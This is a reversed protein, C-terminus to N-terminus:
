GSVGLFERYRIELFARNPADLRRGPARLVRGHMEKMGHELMPGDVEDLLRRNIKVVSDPTVGLLNADFAAHHIKCLSLGNKVTPEGLEHSDPLIHAADLLIGHRLDCVACRTDYAVIVRARFAAQHVRQRATRVSYSKQLETMHRLDDFSATAEDLAIVFTREEPYDDVVYVPLVPVLINKVEKRFLILPVGATIANRLKRNDGSWPDGARYAYRLLGDSSELDDYPGNVTAVISLTSAFAVPNRIGRSYDILPLKEGNARYSLLEHRSIFGGNADSRAKVWAMIQVRLANEIASDLEMGM